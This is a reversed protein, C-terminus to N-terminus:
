MKIIKNKTKPFAEARGGTLFKEIELWILEIFKYLQRSKSVLYKIFKNIILVKNVIKILKTKKM